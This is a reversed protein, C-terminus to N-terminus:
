TKWEFSHIINDLSDSITIQDLRNQRKVNLSSLGVDPQPPDTDGSPKAPTLLWGATTAGNEFRYEIASNAIRKGFEPCYWSEVAQVNACQFFNLDFRKKGFELQWSQDAHNSLKVEPGFHLFGSATKTPTSGNSTSRTELRDICYWFQNSQIGILRSVKPIGFRRFANHSGTAWCFDGINGENIESTWGRYGQRFKSWIDFQNQDGTSVVNHALSSRCYWRMPDDEYNYTGSDVLWRVGGISSEMTLLDCHAHAPLNDAGANGRDFILFNSQDRYIWYDGVRSAASGPGKTTQISDSAVAPAPDLSAADALEWICEVSPAEGFCSDGLLPIEGDPHVIEELFKLMRESITKLQAHLSQDVPQCAIMMELFNGLIQCHYMPCREFHEGTQLVQEEIQGALIERVQELWAKSESTDFYCAALTLARINELLHNGRLDWELNRSLFAAQLHASQQMRQRVGTDLPEVALLCFWVPLRRSICYPHWAAIHAASSDISNQDIWSGITQEILKLQAADYQNGDARTNSSEALPLLYEHYHLQFQWLLSNKKANTSNKATEMRWDLARMDNLVEIEGDLLQQKV